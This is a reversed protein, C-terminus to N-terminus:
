DRSYNVTATFTAMIFAALVGARRTYIHAGLLYVGWLLGLLYVANTMYAVLRSPGFLVYLPLTTLPFLPAVDPSLNIFESILAGLGDDSFAWLYRIGMYLYFAQDWPPPITLFHRRLWFLNGLVCLGVLIALVGFVSLAQSSRGCWVRAPMFPMPLRSSQPSSSM